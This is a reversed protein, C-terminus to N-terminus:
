KLIPEHTTDRTMQISFFLLLYVLFAIRPVDMWSSLLGILAAGVLSAGVYRSLVEEQSTPIAASGAVGSSRASARAYALKKLVFIVLGGMLILGVAGREILLEIYVNDIHWPLYYGQASAFWRALGHSFDGNEILDHGGPGTLAIKQLEMAGGENLVSISFVGFRPLTSAQTASAATSRGRLPINLQQWKAQGLPRLKFFRYHCSGEYIM